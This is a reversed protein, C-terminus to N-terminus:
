CVGVAIKLTVALFFVASPDAHIDLTSNRTVHSLGELIERFNM